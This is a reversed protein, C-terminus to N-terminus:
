NARPNQIAGATPLSGGLTNKQVLRDRALDLLSFADRVAMWLGLDLRLEAGVPLGDTRVVRRQIPLPLRM